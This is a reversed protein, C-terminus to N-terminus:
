QAPPQQAAGIKFSNLFQGAASSDGGPVNIVCLMFLERQSGMQKSLVRISGSFLGDVMRYEKGTYGSLKVDRIQQVAVRVEQGTSAIARNMGSVLGQVAADAASADTANDNSGNTWMLMYLTRNNSGVLYNVDAIKGQGDLVPYTYAFGDGPFQVSFLRGPSQFQIWENATGDASIRKFTPNGALSGPGVVSGFLDDSSLGAQTGRTLHQRPAIVAKADAGANAAANAKEAEAKRFDWPSVPSQDQWLGRHESRAAQQCQAYLDRDAPSLEYGLDADYWAVGDRILQGGIDIGNSIIKAILYGSALHTYEVTVAKDLVLAKLHERAIDSFPQGSEPPAVAKLRINMQRNINAVVLMNGSKVETVKAQLTAAGALPPVACLTLAILLVRSITTTKM